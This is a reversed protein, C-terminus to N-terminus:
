EEQSWDPFTLEWLKRMRGERYIAIGIVEVERAPRDPWSLTIFVRFGLRDESEVTADEDYRIEYSIDSAFAEHHFRVFEEYDQVIGNSILDFEPDYFETILSGDKKMVMETFMEQLRVFLPGSPM